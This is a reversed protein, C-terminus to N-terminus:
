CLVSCVEPQMILLGYFKPAVLAIDVAEIRAKAVSEANEITSEKFKEAEAYSKEINIKFAEVESFIKQVRSKEVEIGKLENQAANTIDVIKQELNPILAEFTTIKQGTVIASLSSVSAEIKALREMLLAIESNSLQLKENTLNSDM